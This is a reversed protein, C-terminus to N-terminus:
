QIPLYIGPLNIGKGDKYLIGEEYIDDHNEERVVLLMNIGENKSNVDDEIFDFRLKANESFDESEELARTSFLSEM